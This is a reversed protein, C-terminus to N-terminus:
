GLLSEPTIVTISDLRSQIRELTDKAAQRWKLETETDGINMAAIIQQEAIRLNNFEHEM